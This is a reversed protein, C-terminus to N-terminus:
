GTWEMFLTALPPLSLLVSQARGHSVVPESHTAALAKSLDGGGYPASDTNLRTRWVGPLPVGIRVGDHMQLSFNCVVLMLQGGAGKRLFSLTSRAADDANM